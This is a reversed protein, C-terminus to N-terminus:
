PASTVFDEVRLERRLRTKAASLRASVTSEPTGLAAAIERNSYGHLHRLVIIAADQPRLARLALFLDSAPRPDPDSPHPEDREAWPLVARRREKRRYSVAVNLAIRHLWAEAPADPRWRKWARYARVFTEQACDEAAEHQRLIASLTRVIRGHSDRYLRDFDDRNGPHYEPTPEM